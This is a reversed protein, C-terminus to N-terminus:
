TEESAPATNRRQQDPPKLVRYRPPWGEVRILGGVLLRDRLDDHEAPDAAAVIRRGDELRAIVPAGVVEDRHYVVTSAEVTADARFDSSADDIVPLASADIDVQAAGTAGRAFGTPPPESGYVGVSHKTVYWGLGSVLARGGAERLREVATAIAHTTYNNGPGGFFPLGGTVTLGRPDFPDLRLAECAMEVPAPFCSYLDFVDLDDVGLGAAALAHTAATRIGPSEWLRPRASPEWVDSADAGSWVFVPQEALGIERALALSTVVVAAGQDVNLFACMRKTYPEAVVRNEPSPMAIEVPAFARSSWAFPHRSAVESFPALLAAMEGRHTLIDHGARAALSSEILAYIHVPLVLGIASEARGVGPRDDGVVPDADVAVEHDRSDPAPRQGARELAASRMAEAGVILSAALRGAAIDEAARTVLMQPTNGGITTIETRQPALGLRHALRSAVAPHCRSLVGVVSLRDIRTSLRPSQDLVCRGARELLDIARVVGEREVVQGVAAIVPTREDDM